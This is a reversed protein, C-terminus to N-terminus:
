VEGQLEGTYVLTTDGEMYVPGPWPDQREPNPGFHIILDEGSRVTVKTPSNTWGALHSALATAVAGTGCALTEDEVGREYTRLRVAGPGIVQAFNANTGAPRFAQHYRIARGLGVVDVNAVDDVFMVAHPVGTNLSHASMRRGAVEMERPAGIDKPRPMEVKVRRGTVEARVVGAVTRFSLSPRCLGLDLALRSVCRSANGCMEAESGDANHFRWKFDVADGPDPREIYLLGDAGVAKGRPCLRKALEGPHEVMQGDWNNFIIFDNGTGSMKYFRAGM